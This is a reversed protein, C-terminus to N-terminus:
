NGKKDDNDDILTLHDNIFDFLNKKSYKEEATDPAPNCEYLFCCYMLWKGPNESFRDIQTVTPWYVPVKNKIKGFDEMLADYADYTMEIM